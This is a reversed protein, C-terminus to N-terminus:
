KKNITLKLYIYKNTYVRFYIKILCRLIPFKKWVKELTEHNKHNKMIKM